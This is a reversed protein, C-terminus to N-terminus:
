DFRGIMLHKDDCEVVSHPRVAKEGTIFHLLLAIEIVSQLVLDFSQFPYFLMDALYDWSVQGM